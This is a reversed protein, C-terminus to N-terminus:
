EERETRGQIHGGKINSLKCRKKLDKRCQKQGGHRDNDASELETEPLDYKGGEV